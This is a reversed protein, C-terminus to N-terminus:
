RKLERNYTEHSMLQWSKGANKSLLRWRIGLDIKLYGSQRLESYVRQGQQFLALLRQARAIVNHHVCRPDARHFTMPVSAM